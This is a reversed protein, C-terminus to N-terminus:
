YGNDKQHQDDYAHLAPNSTGRGGHLHEQRKRKHLEAVGHHGHPAEVLVQDHLLACILDACRLEAHTLSALVKQTGKDLTRPPRSRM